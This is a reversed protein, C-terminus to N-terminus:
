EPSNVHIPQQGPNLLKEADVSLTLLYQLIGIQGQLEADRQMFAQINLPDIKLSIREAALQAIQNQIHQKQLTTFIRSQIAEDQSMTWAQFPNDHNLFAM